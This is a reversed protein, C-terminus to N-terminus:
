CLRYNLIRECLSHQHHPFADDAVFHPSISNVENLRFGQPLHCRGAAIAQPFDCAKWYRADGISGEAGANCYIFEYKGNAVGM